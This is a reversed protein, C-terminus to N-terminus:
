QVDGETAPQLREKEHEYRLDCLTEEVTALYAVAEKNMVRAWSPIDTSPSSFPYAFRYARVMQLMRKAHLSLDRYSARGAIQCLLSDLSTEMQDLHRIDSYSHRRLYGLDFAAHCAHSSMQDVEARVRALRACLVSTLTGICVAALTLVILKGKHM